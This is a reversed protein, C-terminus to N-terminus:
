LEDLDGELGSDEDRGNARGAARRGIRALIDVLREKAREYHIRESELQHPRLDRKDAEDGLIFEEPQDCVEEFDDADLESEVGVWGTKNLVGRLKIVKRQVGLSEEKRGERDMNMAETSRSTTLLLSLYEIISLALTDVKQANPSLPSVFVPTESVPVCGPYLLELLASVSNLGHTTGSVQDAVLAAALSAQASSSPGTFIGWLGILVLGLAHVVSGKQTSQMVSRIEKDFASAKLNAGLNHSELASLLSKLSTTSLPSATSAEVLHIFLRTYLDHVHILTIQEALASLPASTPPLSSLSRLAEHLPLGLVTVLAPPTTGDVRSQATLWLQQPSRLLSSEPQLLALLALSYPSSATVNLHLITHWKALASANNAVCNNFHTM